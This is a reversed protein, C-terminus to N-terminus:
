RYVNKHKVFQLVTHHYPSFEPDPIGHPPVADSGSGTQFMDHHYIAEGGVKWINYIHLIHDYPYSDGEPGGFERTGNRAPEDDVVPKNFKKLLGSIEEAAIEWHKGHRSTHPSLYDLVSNERDEGLDSGGGPSNSVLRAPDYRKILSYYDLTRYNRENWIQFVVNRYPKLAQAVAQVAHDAAADSLKKDFSESSFLVLEVAMDVSAANVLIAKLRNLYMPQLDGNRDYLTCSDCTDVFGLDNNWEAWIRIVSIGYHKFKKLWDLQVREDSNFADNYLANFFSIGTFDFQKADMTFHTGSTGISNQGTARPPQVFLAFAILLVGGLYKGDAVIPLKNLNM